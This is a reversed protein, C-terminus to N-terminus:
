RRPEEPLRAEDDWAPDDPADQAARAADMERQEVLRCVERAREATKQQAPSKHEQGLFWSLYGIRGSAMGGACFAGWTVDKHKGFGLTEDLYPLALMAETLPIGHEDSRGVPAPSASRPAESRAGSSRGSGASQPKSSAGREVHEYHIEEASVEGFGVLNSIARNMARTHAHARVNHVTAQAEKKESAYCSGDGDSFRGNPATARYTALYGWAGSEAEDLKEERIELTLNFATAIARWYNKKRFQKGQITQICDPLAKDLAAQIRTYERIADTVDGIAARVITAPREVAILDRTAEWERRQEDGMIEDQAMRYERETRTDPQDSM